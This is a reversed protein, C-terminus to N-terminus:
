ISQCGGCQSQLMDKVASGGQSIMQAQDDTLEFGKLAVTLNWPGYKYIVRDTITTIPEAAVSNDLSPEMGVSGGATVGAGTLLNQYSTFDAPVVGNLLQSAALWQQMYNQANSNSVDARLGIPIGPKLLFPTTLRRWESNGRMHSRLGMGGYTAGVTEYARTPRYVSVGATPSGGTPTLTMNGIRTRDIPIPIANGGVGGTNVSQAYYAATQQIIALTDIESSSAAGDQGSSPTYATFRLSDNIITTQQGWQWVLNYARAMYYFALETWWGCEIEAPLMGQGATLGLSNANSASLGSGLLDIAAFADPSVPQKIGTAPIPNLSNCKIQAQFPQCELHWGIAVVLTYTQFKGPEAMTSEVAQAGPPPSNTSSNLPDIRAGFTQSIAQDTLPGGYHIRVTEINPLAYTPAQLATQVDGIFRAIRDTGQLGTYSRGLGVQNVARGRPSPVLLSSSM